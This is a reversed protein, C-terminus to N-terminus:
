SLLGQAEAPEMRSFFIELPVRSEVGKDLTCEFTLPVEIFREWHRDVDRTMRKVPFCNIRELWVPLFFLMFM